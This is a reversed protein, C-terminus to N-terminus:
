RREGVARRRAQLEKLWQRSQRKGLLPGHSYGNFAAWADGRRSEALMVAMRDVPQYIAHPPVYGDQYAPLWRRVAGCRERWVRGTDKCQDCCVGKRYRAFRTPVGECMPCRDRSRYPGSVSVVLRRWELHSLLM